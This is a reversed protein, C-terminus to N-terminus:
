NVAENLEERSEGERAERVEKCEEDAKERKIKEVYRAQEKKLCHPCYWEGNEKSRAFGQQAAIAPVDSTAYGGGHKKVRIPLESQCQVDHKKGCEDMPIIRQDCRVLYYFAKRMGM